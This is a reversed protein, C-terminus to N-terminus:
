KRKAMSIDGEFMEPSFFINEKWPTYNDRLHFWKGKNSNCLYGKLFKIKPPHCWRVNSFGLILLCHFGAHAASFLPLPSSLRRAWMFHVVSCHHRYAHGERVVGPSPFGILKMVKRPSRVETKQIEAQSRGRLSYFTVDFSGRPCGCMRRSKEVSSQCINPYLYGLEKVEWTPYNLTIKCWKGSNHSIQYHM